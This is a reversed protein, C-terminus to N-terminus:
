VEALRSGISPSHGPATCLVSPELGARLIMAVPQVQMGMDRLGASCKESLKWMEQLHWGAFTLTGECMDGFVTSYTVLGFSCM